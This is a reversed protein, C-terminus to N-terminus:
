GRLHCTDDWLWVVPNDREYGLVSLSAPSLALREGAVPPLLCWRSAM